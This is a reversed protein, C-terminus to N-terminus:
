GLRSRIVQSSSPRQRGLRSIERGAHTASNCLRYRNFTSGFRGNINGSKNDFPDFTGSFPIGSSNIGCIGANNKAPLLELTFFGLIGGCSNVSFYHGAM